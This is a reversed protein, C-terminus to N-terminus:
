GPDGKRALCWLYAGYKDKRLPVSNIAQQMGAHRIPIIPGSAALHLINLNLRRCCDRFYHLRLNRGLVVEFSASYKWKLFAWYYVIRAITALGLHPTTVLIHGGSRTVRAHEKLAAFTEPFHEIVGISYTLDFSGDPFPLLRSDGALGIGPAQKALTQIIDLCFFKAAVGRAKLINVMRGRGVGIELIANSKGAVSLFAPMMDVEGPHIDEGMHIDRWVKQLSNGMTDAIEGAQVGL